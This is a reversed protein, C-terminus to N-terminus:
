GYRHEEMLKWRTNNAMEIDFDTMDGHGPFILVDSSFISAWDKFEKLEIRNERSNPMSIKLEHNLIMDESLIFEFIHDFIVYSGKSHGEVHRLSMGWSHLIDLLESSLMPSKLTFMKKKFIMMM